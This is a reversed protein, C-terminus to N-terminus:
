NKTFQNVTKYINDYTEQFSYKIHVPRRSRYFTFLTNITTKALVTTPIIISSEICYNDINTPYKKLIEANKKLIHMGPFQLNSIDIILVYKTNIKGFLKDIILFLNDWENKTAVSKKFVLTILDFYNLKNINFKYFQSEENNM